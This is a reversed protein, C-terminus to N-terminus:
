TAVGQPYNKRLWAKRLSHRNIEWGYMLQLASATAQWSHGEDRLRTAEDWAEPPMHEPQLRTPRALPRTADGGLLWLPEVGLAGALAWVAALTPNSGRGARLNAIYGASYGSRKALDVPRVARLRMAENLRRRLVRHPSM